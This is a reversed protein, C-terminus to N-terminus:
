NIFQSLMRMEYLLTAAYGKVSESLYLLFIGPPWLPLLRPRPYGVVEMPLCGRWAAVPSPVLM